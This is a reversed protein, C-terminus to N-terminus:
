EYALALRAIDIRADPDAKSSLGGSLGVGKGSISTGHLRTLEETRRLVGDVYVRAAGNPDHTVIVDHWADCAQAQRGEVGVSHYRDDPPWFVAGPEFRGERVVFDYRSKCPAFVQCFADRGHPRVRAYFTRPRNEATKETKPSVALQSGTRLRLFTVGAETVTEAGKFCAQVSPSEADARWDLLSKEASPAFTKPVFPRGNVYDELGKAGLALEVANLVEYDRLVVARDYDTRAALLRARVAEPIRGDVLPNRATEFQVSVTRVADAGFRFEGAAPKVVRIGFPPMTVSEASLRGGLKGSVPYPTDNVLQLRDGYLRATVGTVQPSPCGEGLPTAYFGFAARREEASWASPINVDLWTHFFIRPTYDRCVAAMDYLAFGGAPKTEFVAVGNSRWWWAKAMPVQTGIHENLGSPALYVADYRRVLDRAGASFMMGYNSLQLEKGYDLKPLMRVGEQAPDYVSPDSTASVYRAQLFGDREAKTADARAFPSDAGASFNPSVIFDWKEAGTRVVKRMADLREKVVRNRWATWQPRLEGKMLLEYRNAFRGAGSAEVRIGTEREFAEVTDDDYGVEDSTVDGTIYGFCPMWGWGTQAVVGDVAGLNGYRAYLEGLVNTMSNWVSPALFNPCQCHGTIQRGYRDVQDAPRAMGAWNERDGVSRAGGSTLSPAGSYEYSLYTRIGNAKYMRYVLRNYDFDTWSDESEASESPYGFSYMYGGEISANMGFHKLQQVRNAVSLFAATWTRWQVGREYEVIKPTAATGWHHMLPRENHNGYIRDTPPLKLAPLGGEVEYVKFGCVAARSTTLGNEFYVTTNRSGPFFVIRMKQRAGSLPMIGGCKVAGSGVPWGRSGVPFSNNCFNIPYTDLICAYIVQERTDPFEVELVHPAGLRGVDLKYAFLDHVHAGTERFRIGNEEGVRGVDLRPHYWSCAHDLFNSPNAEKQTCDVAQVLRLRRDTEADIEDPGFEDLDLKGSVVMENKFTDVTRAGDKLTWTIEYAGVPLKPLELARSSRGDLGIEAACGGAGLTSAVTAVLKTAKVDPPLSVDWAIAGDAAFVPDRSGDPNKPLVAIPGAHLPPMSDGIVNGNLQREFGARGRVEAPKKWGDAAGHRWRWTSDTPFVQTSGDPAVAFAEAYFKRSPGYGENFNATYVIENEGAHLLETIDRKLIGGGGGRGDGRWAVKGNVSLEGQSSKPCSFGARWPAAGLAFTKRWSVDYTYPALTLRHVKVKAGPTRCVLELGNIGYHGTQRIVGQQCCVTQRGEGKVAFAHEVRGRYGYRCHEVLLWDSQPVNQELDIEMRYRGGTLKEWGRGFRIACDVRNTGQAGWIRSWGNSGVAFAFPAVPAGFESTFLDLDTRTEYEDPKLDNPASVIKAQWVNEEAPM